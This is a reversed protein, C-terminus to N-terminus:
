QLNLLFNSSIYFKSSFPTDDNEFREKSQKKKIKSSSTNMLRGFGGVVISSHLFFFFSVLSFFLTWRPMFLFLTSFSLLMIGVGYNGKYQREIFELERGLQCGSNEYHIKINKHWKFGVVETWFFFGVVHRHMNRTGLNFYKMYGRVYVYLTYLCVCM